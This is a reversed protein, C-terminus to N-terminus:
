WTFVVSSCRPHHPRIYTPPTAITRHGLTRIRKNATVFTGQEAGFRGNLLIWERIADPFELSPPYRTLSLAGRTREPLGIRQRPRTSACYQDLIEGSLAALNNPCGIIEPAMIAITVLGFITVVLLRWAQSYRQLHRQMPSRGTPSSPLAAPGLRKTKPMPPPKPPPRFLDCGGPPDAVNFYKTNPRCVPNGATSSRQYRIVLHQLHALHCHYVDRASTQGLAM